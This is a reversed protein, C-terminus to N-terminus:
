GLSCLQRCETSVDEEDVSAEKTGAAAVMNKTSATEKEAAAKKKKEAEQCQELQVLPVRALYGKGECNQPVNTTPM